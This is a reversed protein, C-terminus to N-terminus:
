GIKLIKVKFVGGPALVDVVDGKSHGLIASGLPSEYSIKGEVPDSEARGVVIYSEKEKEATEITVKTGIQVVDTKSIDDVIEAQALISKLYAIRGEVFAQANKAAEVEVDADVGLPSGDLAERLRDAVEQRRESRLYELEAKLKDYGEQTLFSPVM